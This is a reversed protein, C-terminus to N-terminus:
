ATDRLQINWQLKKSYEIAFLRTIGPRIEIDEVFKVVNPQDNKINQKSEQDERLLAYLEFDVFSIWLYCSSSNTQGLACDQRKVLQTPVM